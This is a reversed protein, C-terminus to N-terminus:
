TNIFLKCRKLLNLTLHSPKGFEEFIQLEFNTMVRFFDNLSKLMEDLREKIKKYKNLDYGLIERM